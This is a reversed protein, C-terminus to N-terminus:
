TSCNKNTVNRIYHMDLFTSNFFLVCIYMYTSQIRKIAIGDDVPFDSVTVTMKAVWKRASPVCTELIALTGLVMLEIKIDQLVSLNSSLVWQTMM